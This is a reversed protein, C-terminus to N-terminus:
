PLRHHPVSGRAGCRVVRQAVGLKVATSSSQQAARVAYIGGGERFRMGRGRSAGSACLFCYRGGLPYREWRTGGGGACSSGTSHGCRRLVSNVGSRISLKAGERQAARRQAHRIARQTLASASGTGCPQRNMGQRARKGFALGGRSGRAGFVM